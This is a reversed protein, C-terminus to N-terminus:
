QDRKPPLVEFGRPKHERRLLYRRLFFALVVLAAIVAFGVFMFVRVPTVNM